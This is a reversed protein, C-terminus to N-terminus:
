SPIRVSKSFVSDPTTPVVEPLSDKGVIWRVAATVGHGLMASEDQELVSGMSVREPAAGFDLGSSKPDFGTRQETEIVAVRSARIAEAWSRPDAINSQGEKADRVSRDLDILGVGAIRGSLEAAAAMVTANAERQGVLYIQTSDVVQHKKLFQVLLEIGRKGRILAEQEDSKSLARNGKADRPTESDVNYALIEVQDAHKVADLMGRADIGREASYAWVVAKLKRYNAPQRLHVRVTDGEAGFAALEFHAFKAGRSIFKLEQGALTVQDQLASEVSMERHGRFTRLLMAVAFLLAAVVMLTRALKKQDSM